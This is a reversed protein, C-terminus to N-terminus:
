PSFYGPQFREGMNRPKRRVRPSVTLMAAKDHKKLGATGGKPGNPPNPLYTLYIMTAVIWIGVGIGIAGSINIGNKMAYLVGLYFLCGLIMGIAATKSYKIVEYQSGTNFYISLLCLFSVTPMAGIIGSMSPCWDSIKPISIVLVGAVVFKLFNFLM